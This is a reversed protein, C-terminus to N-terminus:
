DELVLLIDEEKLLYCSEGEYDVPLLRNRLFIVTDGEKVSMPLVTGNVNKGEGVAMVVGSISTDSTGSPLIIGSDTINKIENQKVIVFDHLPKM